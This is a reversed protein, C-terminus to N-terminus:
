KFLEPHKDKYKNRLYISGTFFIPIIDEKDPHRYLYDKIPYMIKNDKEELLIYFSQEEIDLATKLDKRELSSIFMPFNDDIIKKIGSAELIAQGKENLERPSNGPAYDNAVIGTWRVLSGKPLIGQKECGEMYGPLVENCFVNIIKSTKNFNGIFKFWGRSLGIIAILFIVVGGIATISNSVLTIIEPYTM